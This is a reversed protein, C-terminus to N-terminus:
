FKRKIWLFKKNCFYLASTKYINCIILQNSLFYNIFVCVNMYLHFANNYNGDFRDLVKNLAGYAEKVYSWGEFARDCEISASINGTISADGRTPTRREEEEDDEEEEDGKRGRSKIWLAIKIERMEKVGADKSGRSFARIRNQMSIGDTVRPSDLDRRFVLYCSSLSDISSTKINSIFALFFDIECYM